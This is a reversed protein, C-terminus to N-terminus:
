WIRHLHGIIGGISSTISRSPCNSLMADRWIKMNSDTPYENPWRMKLRAEGQPRRALIDTSVKNGSATLIDSMFLVQLSVKVRNLSSLTKGTYGAKILVQMIFQDGEKPFELPQDAVVVQMDFISLKEWLMKMWSHTVLFGYKEYQEQLPQFPLGLKVFLFSYSAQM